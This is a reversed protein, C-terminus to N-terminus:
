KKYKEPLIEFHFVTGDVPIDLVLNDGKFKKIAIFGQHSTGPFITNSRWYGEEIRKNEQVKADEMDEQAKYQLLKSADSGDSYALGIIADSLMDAWYTSRSRKKTYENYNYIILSDKDLQSLGARDLIFNNIYHAFEKPLNSVHYVSARISRPNFLFESTGNNAISIIPVDLGNSTDVTVSINHFLGYYITQDNRVFNGYKVSDENNSAAMAFLPTIMAILLLLSFHKKMSLNMNM